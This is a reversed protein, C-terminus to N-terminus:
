KITRKREFKERANAIISNAAKSQNNKQSNQSGKKLAEIALQEANMPEEFKAKKVIDKDICNAIAEINQIRKREEKRGEEKAKNEIQAVLEPYTARLEKVNM